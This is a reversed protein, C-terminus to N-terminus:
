MLKDSLYLFIFINPYGNMTGQRLHFGNKLPLGLIRGLLKIRSSDEAAPTSFFDIM